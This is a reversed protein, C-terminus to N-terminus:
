RYMYIYIVNEVIKCKCKSESIAEFANKVFNIVYSFLNTKSEMTLQNRIEEIVPKDLIKDVIKFATQLNLM